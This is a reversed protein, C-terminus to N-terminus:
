KSIGIKKEIISLRRDHERFERQVAGPLHILPGLTKEIADLRMNTTRASSDLSFLTMETKGKFESVESKFEAIDAKVEDFGKKTSVALGDVTTILTDIKKDLSAGLGDIKKDLTQLTAKKITKKM